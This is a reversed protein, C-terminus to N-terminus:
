EILDATPPPFLEPLLNLQAPDLPGDWDLAQVQSASRRGALARGIEFRSARLTTVPEGKGVETSGSEHEVRLTGLGQAKLRGGIARLGWDVGIATADSERGGPVGLAGRIDQEHTSADALMQGSAPGLDNIVAEVKQAHEDWDDLLQDIPWDARTAVQANTWADSAVGDMNGNSVDDCVGALHAVVDRVRWEPTAPAKVELAAPDANCVLDAVRTRLEHYAGAYDPTDSM